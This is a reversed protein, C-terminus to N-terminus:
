PHVPEDVPFPFRPSIIRFGDTGVIRLQADHIGSPFDAETTIYQCVGGLADTVQVGRSGEGNIDLYITRGTLPLPVDATGGIPRYVLEWQLVIKADTRTINM